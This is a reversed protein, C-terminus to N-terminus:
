AADVRVQIREKRGLIFDAAARAEPESFPRPGAYTEKCPDDSAGKRDGWNFKWNRNLDVGHCPSRKAFLRGSALEPTSRTKRWLRDVTHSYEYGDPNLVPLIYWDADMVLHPHDLYREVLQMCLYMAVAPGIWERAHSGTACVRKM